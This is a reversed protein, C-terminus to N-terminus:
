CFMNELLAKKMNKLKELKCQHLTILSDLDNFLEGIKQQEEYKPISYINEGYDKFYIHPITSGSFLNGLDAKELISFLFNYECKNPIIAGMTGLIATNKPLKRIRGIGAGDKIISIYDKKITEKNTKGILENADYLAHKGDILVDKSTINSSQYLSFENLKCQEWTETFGKFRIEPINQFNSPFMKELLASKMQKLKDYKCQHLTILSDLDNFLQGIKVQEEKNYTLIFYQDKLITSYRKYGENKPLNISLLNYFYDGDVNDLFYAKVGDSAILFPKKPKYLSLTHDGFLVISEFNRFPDKNTYGAISDNGQQIVEYEGLESPKLDIDVSVSKLVDGVKCQEWTETFGKFRIKPKLYKEDM